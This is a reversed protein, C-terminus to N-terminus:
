KGGAAEIKGIRRIKLGQGPELEFAVEDGEKLGELAKPDSFGFVMTMPPMELSRIEGHRITAKGAERNIKRIVGGTAEGSRIREQWSPGEGREPEAEKKLAAQEPAPGAEALAEAAFIGVALAAAIGLVDLRMGARMGFNKMAGGEDGDQRGFRKRLM